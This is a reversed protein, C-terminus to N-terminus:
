QKRHRTPSGFIAESRDSDIRYPTGSLCFPTLARQSQGRLDASTLLRKRDFVTIFYFAVVIPCADGFM